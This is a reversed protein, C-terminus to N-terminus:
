RSPKLQIKKEKWDLMAINTKM